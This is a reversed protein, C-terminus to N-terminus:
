RFYPKINRVNVIDYVKRRKIRVTGNDNVKVIKYPGEYEPGGYKTQNYKKFLIEDVV